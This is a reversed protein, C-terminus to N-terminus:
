GQEAVVACMVLKVSGLDLADSLQMQPSGARGNVEDMVANPDDAEMEYIAVYSSPMPNGDGIVHLRRAAVMGPVALVDPLHQENYWKNYEDEKGETPETFVLLNFKAM